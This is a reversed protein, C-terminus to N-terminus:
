GRAEEGTARAPRGSSDSSRGRPLVKGKDRNGRRLKGMARDESMDPDSLSRARGRLTEGAGRLAAGGASASLICEVGGEWRDASISFRAPGPASAQPVRSPVPQWSSRASAGATHALLLPPVTKSAEGASGPFLPVQESLWAAPCATARADTLLGRHPGPTPLLPESSATNESACHTRANSPVM